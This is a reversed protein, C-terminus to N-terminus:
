TEGGREAAVPLDRRMLLAFEHAVGSRCPSRLIPVHLSEHRHNRFHVGSVRILLNRSGPVYGNPIGGTLRAKCRQTKAHLGLVVGLALVIVLRLSRTGAGSPNPLKRLFEPRM